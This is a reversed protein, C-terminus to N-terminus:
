ASIPEFGAQVFAQIVTDGCDNPLAVACYRRARTLAVFAIRLEEAEAADMSVGLLPKTWVTSQPTHARSRTRDVVVLVADRSEGKVDHITQALLGAAPRAFANAAIHGTQASDSALVGGAQRHPRATLPAVVSALVRATQQIWKRLDQDLDPAEGILRMTAQRVNWRTTSDLQVLSEIDFATSAVIQDVSEIARRSVHRGGRIASVVQGVALPRPRVAVRQQSGNLEKVLAHGRALVAPREFEYGLSRHRAEFTSIADAPRAPNYLFLEPALPCDADRGVARDATTRGCFRVAVDCIKQSSRHNETLDLQTLGADFALAECGERNAGTYSSISQELDGVLVLSTLRGTAWLAKLCALQLESTDQAEDVILEDFRGAVAAALDPHKELVRLSWYMADDFSVWGAAAIARKRRLAESQGLRAAEGPDLRLNPASRVCLTGVPTFRFYSAALRVTDSGLAITPWLQADDAVLRPASSSGTVLHGFPYLVYRLLFLHLTGVFHRSSSSRGLGHQLVQQIQEVGVNTYSCAAVRKGEDDLRAIRAAATRTKGSGPCATLFFNGEAEVAPRQHPSVFEPAHAAKSM